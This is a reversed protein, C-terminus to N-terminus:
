QLSILGRRLGITVAETRDEANLKRLISSVHAKITKESLFLAEGIERNRKGDAMLRLVELERPSLELATAGSQLRSILRGAVSPPLLSQGRATARIAGLLDQRSSDKLLYGQAGAQLGELISEDNDYTTLILIQTRPLRSKIQRIAEVGTMRPMRLDMLVVDPKFREALEVAEEGDEAEGVVEMDSQSEVIASIGDRVIPHDDALLLRLPQSM